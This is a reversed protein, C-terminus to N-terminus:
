MRVGIRPCPSRYLPFLLRACCPIRCRESPRYYPNYPLFLPIGSSDPLLGPKRIRVPRFFSCISRDNREMCWIRRSLCIDWLYRASNRKNFDKLRVPLPPRFFRKQDGSYVYQDTAPFHACVHSYYRFRAKHSFVLGGFDRLRASFRSQAM